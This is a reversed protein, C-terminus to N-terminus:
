KTAPSPKNQQYQYLLDAKGDKLRWTEQLETSDKKGSADTRYETFWVLVWDENKDKSRLPVVAHVRSSVTGMTNRFSKSAAIISDKKGSMVEGSSFVMFVSDAFKDKSNDLSNNDWDKYLGFITNVNRSDGIEFDSSYDATYAYAVHDNSTTASDKASMSDVKTDSGSNCAAFAALSFLFFIKKMVTPKPKLNRILNRYSDSLCGTQKQGISSNLVRQWSYNKPKNYDLV